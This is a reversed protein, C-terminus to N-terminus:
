ALAPVLGEPMGSVVARDRGAAKAAYLAVDARDLLDSASELGDWMALGASSTHGDPTARRLRDIIGIATDLVCDPLIVVFEEGGVRALLDSPRLQAQWTTAAAILFRDGALHGNKDNFAKFHDVDIFAVVLPAGSRGARAVENALRGKLVRRNAVGTLADVHSQHRMSYVLRQVKFGILVSVSAVVVVKRWETVPYAPEGILVIPAALALTAGMICVILDARRGYLAMMVVPVLVLLAYGSATGGEAERLLAVGLLYGLPVVLQFSWPLHAWPVVFTATILVSWLLLAAAAMTLTREGDEFMLSAAALATVVAIPAMKRALGAPEFMSPLDRHDSRVRPHYKQLRVASGIVM